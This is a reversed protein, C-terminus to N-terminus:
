CWTTPHVTGAPARRWRWGADPRSASDVDGGWARIQRDFVQRNAKVDDIVLVRLGAVASVLDDVESLGDSSVLPLRFWFRSGVEPESEAGIEGGMLGVLQKCIALGLGTGGFRRTTSSDAQTFRSFLRETVERSMGIGTDSVAFEIWHRDGAKEIQNVEVTVSGRETFKLANGVLNLLIQRLRGPDGSVGEPVAPDVFLLLEVGQESARPGLIQGVSDVVDLLRLDIQELDLKGAEMKSFDLIDNIIALLAEGSQRIVNVNELQDKSLSNDQMLGAMGLIGNLPTRIEHSMNALFESKAHNASEADRMAIRAVDAAEEARGRAAELEEGKATLQENVTRLREDALKQPTIDIALLHWLTSGDDRRTPRGYGRVWRERGANDRVRFETEYPVCDRTSDRVVTDYGDIDDPHITERLIQPEALVAEAEVGLIQGVGENMFLLEVRGDPHIIRQYVMGPVNATLHRFNEESERLAREQELRETIDRVIVIAGRKGEWRLPTAAIEAHFMSGDLRLRKVDAHFVTKAESLPTEHLGVLYARDDPHILEAAKRGVIEDPSNAGFLKVGAENMLAIEGERHVYIADPNIELLRRYRDESERLEREASLLETIDRVIVMGGRRGQWDIPTAAIDAEFMSGDLKLRKQRMRLLGNERSRLEAHRKEVLPRDDTHVLDLIRVGMLEDASTAGFLRVGAENILVIRGECHVYIADPSLELVNAYRAETEERQREVEKQASINRVVTLASREGGWEVPRSAVHGTFESGDARLRRQEIYKAHEGRQHVAAARQEALEHEDPHVFDLIPRGVYEDEERLGFLDRCARNMYVFKGAQHVYLSDPSTEVLDRFREESKRLERERKVRGTVDRLVTMNARTGDWHVPTCVVEADFHRGTLTAHRLVTYETARGAEISEKRMWKAKAIDDPHILNLPLGPFDHVSSAEFLDLAAPNAYILSKDDTILVADLTSRLMERYEGHAGSRRIQERAHRFELRFIAALTWVFGFLLLFVLAPMLATLLSDPSGTQAWARFPYGWLIGALAVGTLPYGLIRRM